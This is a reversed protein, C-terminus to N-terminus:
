GEYKRFRRWWRYFMLIFIFAFFSSTLAGIISAIVFHPAYEKEVIGIVQIRPYLSLTYIFFGLFCIITSYHFLKFDKVTEGPNLLFSVMSVEERKKLSNYVMLSLFIGILGAIGLYIYYAMIVSWEVLMYINASM